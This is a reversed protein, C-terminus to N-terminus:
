RAVAGRLTSLGLSNWSKSSLSFVIREWLVAIYAREGKLWVEMSVLGDAVAELEGARGILQAQGDALVDGEGGGNGALGFFDDAGVRGDGRIFFRAVEVQEDLRVGGAVDGLV